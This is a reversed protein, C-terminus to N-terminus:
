SFKLSFGRWTIGGVLADMILYNGSFITTRWITEGTALGTNHLILGTIYFGGTVKYDGTLSDGGSKRVGTLDILAQLPTRYELTSATSNIRIYNEAVMPTPFETIGSLSIGQERVFFTQVATHSGGESMIRLRGHYGLSGSVFPIYGTRIFTNGEFIAADFTGTYEDRGAVFYFGTIDRMGSGTLRVATGTLGSTPVFGSFFPTNIWTFYQTTTGTNFKNFVTFVGSRLNGPPTAPPYFTILSNGTSILTCLGRTTGSELYVGTTSGLSMGSLSVLTDQSGKNPSFPM